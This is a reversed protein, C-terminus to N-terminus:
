LAAENLYGSPHTALLQGALLAADSSRSLALTARGQYLVAYGGLVPDTAAKSLLPLALAPRGAALQEVASALATKAGPETMPALWLDTARLPTSPDFARAQLAPAVALG